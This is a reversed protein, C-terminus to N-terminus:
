ELFLHPKTIDRYMFMLDYILIDKSPRLIGSIAGLLKNQPRNHVVTEFLTSPVNLINMDGCLEITVDVLLEYYLMKGKIKKLIGDKMKKKIDFVNFEFEIEHNFDIRDLADGVTQLNFASIVEGHSGYLTSVHMNRNGQLANMGLKFEYDNLLYTDLVKIFNLKFKISKISDPDRVAETYSPVRRSKEIIKNLINKNVASIRNHTLFIYQYRSIDWKYETLNNYETMSM